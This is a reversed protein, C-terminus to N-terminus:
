RATPRFTTTSRLLAPWIWKEAEAHADFIGFPVVTATTEDSCDTDAEPSPEPQPPRHTAAAVKTRAVVRDSRRDRSQDAPRDPGHQARTLLQDLVRAVDTENKDDLGKATAIRRAHQWTFDAFPGTVMARHTWPVTIWGDITRVFVQSLDYPDYHVEWLGKKTVIGSHQRRYPGLERTDYTRYDIRIGYDNIARWKVPLWCWRSLVV